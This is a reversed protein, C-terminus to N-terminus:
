APSLAIAVLVARRASLTPLPEPAGSYVRGVDSDKRVKCQDADYGRRSSASSLHLDAKEDKDPDDAREEEEEARTAAGASSIGSLRARDDKIEPLRNFGFICVAFGCLVM